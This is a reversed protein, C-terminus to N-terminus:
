SYKKRAEALQEHSGIDIWEEDFRYAFVEKEKSLSIIFRGADDMTRGEMLKRLFAVAEPTLMYILTAALTTKPHEPKEEFGTIRDEDECEVVGFKNALMKPDKLDRVAVVSGGKELYFSHMRKLSFEFLNDAAVVLVEGHIDEKQIVFNMDGVSGLRDDNSMTGDNYIKIPVPYDAKSRWEEFNKHFKNNTVVFVEDVADVEVIKDMVRDMMTEKGIMLLHKPQNETLPYLRTAYGGALIIAKMM